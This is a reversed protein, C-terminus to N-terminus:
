TPTSFAAVACARRVTPNAPTIDAVHQDDPSPFTGTFECSVDTLISGVLAHDHCSKVFASGTERVDVAAHVFKYVNQSSIEHIFNDQCTRLVAIDGALDNLFRAAVVDVYLHNGIKKSELGIRKRKFPDPLSVTRVKCSSGRGSNM